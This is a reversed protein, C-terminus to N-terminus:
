KGEAKAIAAKATTFYGEYKPNSLDRKGCEIIGKLAELLEPASVILLADASNCTQPSNGFGDCSLIGFGGESVLSYTERGDSSTFETTWKWPSPTNKRM